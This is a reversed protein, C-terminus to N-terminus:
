VASGQLWIAWASLCLFPGFAVGSGTLATITSRRCLALILLTAIGALSAALLTWVSLEVGLWLGLGAALKVDGLGLGPQGRLRMYLVGVLYFLAPFAIGAIVRDAWNGHGAIALLGTVALLASFLDPIEFRQIDAVSIAILLIAFVLAMALVPWFALALTGYIVVHLAILLTAGGAEKGIGEAGHDRDFIM